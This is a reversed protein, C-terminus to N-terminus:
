SASYGPTETHTSVMTNVEKPLRLGYTYLLGALLLLALLGCEGLSLHCVLSQHYLSRDKSDKNACLGGM